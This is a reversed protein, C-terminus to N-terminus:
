NVNLYSKETEFTSKLNQIEVSLHYIEKDKTSLMKTLNSLKKEYKDIENQLMSVDTNKTSLESRIFLNLFIILSFFVNLYKIIFYECYM